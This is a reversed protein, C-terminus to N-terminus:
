AARDHAVRRPMHASPNSMSELSRKAKKSMGAATRTARRRSVRAQRRIRWSVSPAGDADSAALILGGLLGANKLFHTQQQMRKEDDLEEWFRHGALTTPIVSGVLAVAALRRFKGVALLVGAAVQVGGNIRVLNATDNPLADIRESLPGTVKEAAKMKGEPHQIADLGGYVFVSALLPRAIRGSISM